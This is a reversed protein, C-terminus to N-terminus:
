MKRAHEIAERRRLKGHPKWRALSGFILMLKMVSASMSVDPVFCRATTQEIEFWGWGGHGERQRFNRCAQNSCTAIWRWEYRDKLRVFLAPEFFKFPGVHNNPQCLGLTLHSSQMVVPLEESVPDASNLHSADDDPLPIATSGAPYAPKIPTPDSSNTTSWLKQPSMRADPTQAIMPQSSEFDHQGIGPLPTVALETAASQLAALPRTRRRSAQLDRPMPPLLPDGDADNEDAENMLWGRQEEASVVSDEEPGARERTDEDSLVTRRSM